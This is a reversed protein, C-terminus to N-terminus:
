SERRLGELSCLSTRWVGVILFFLWGVVSHMNPILPASNRSLLRFGLGCLVVDVRCIEGAGDWNRLPGHGDVCSALKKAQSSTLALRSRLVAVTHLIVVYQKIM